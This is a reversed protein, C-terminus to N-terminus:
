SLPWSTCKVKNAKRYYIPLDRGAPTLQGSSVNTTGACLLFTPKATALSPRVFSLPLSLSHLAMQM